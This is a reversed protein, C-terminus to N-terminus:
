TGGASTYKPCRISVKRLLMKHLLWALSASERNIPIYAVARPEGSEDPSSAGVAYVNGGLCPASVCCTRCIPNGKM